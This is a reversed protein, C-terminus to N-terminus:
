SRLVAEKKVEALANKVQEWSLPDTSTIHGDGTTQDIDISTINPLAKLAITSLKVCASCTINTITFSLTNMHM